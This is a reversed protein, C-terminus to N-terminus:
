ALSSPLGFKQRTQAARQMWSCAIQRQTGELLQCSFHKTNCVLLLRLLYKTFKIMNVAAFRRWLAFMDSKNMYVRQLPFTDSEKHIKSVSNVQCSLMLVLTSIIVLDLKGLFPFLSYQVGSGCLASVAPAYHIPVVFIQICVSWSLKCYHVCFVLPVMLLTCRCMLLVYLLVCFYVLSVSQEARRM